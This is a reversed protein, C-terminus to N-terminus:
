DARKTQKPVPFNHRYKDFKREFTANNRNCDIKKDPIHAGPFNNYAWSPTTRIAYHKTDQLPKAKDSLNLSSTPSM